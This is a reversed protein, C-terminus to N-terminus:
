QFRTFAMSCGRWRTKKNTLQTNTSAHRSTNKGKDLRCERCAERQLEEREGEREKGALSYLDIYDIVLFILFVLVEEKLNSLRTQHLHTLPFTPLGREWAKAGGGVGGVRQRHKSLGFYQISMWPSTVMVLTGSMQRNNENLLVTYAPKTKKRPPHM